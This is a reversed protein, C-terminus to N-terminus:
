NDIKVPFRVLVRAGGSERNSLEVSGGNAEILESAISLGLGNGEHTHRVEPSRYFRKFASDFAFEDFGRGTDCITVVAGSTDTHLEIEVAGGDPSYKIANDVLNFLARKLDDPSGPITVAEEVFINLKIDREMVKSQFLRVIDVIIEDIRVETEEHPISHSDIRVLIMLQEVLHALSDIENLSIDIGEKLRENEIQKRLFELESFIVTLPTRLEHSADAVFQRQSEFADEIRQMMENLANALSWVENRAAPLDIRRHLSSASIKEATIIMQSLPQFASGVVVYVSIASLFLAFAITMILILTLSDLREDIETMSSALALTLRSHHEDEIQRVTYRFRSDDLETMGRFVHHPESIHALQKSTPVPLNGHEAVIQGGNNTLRLRVDLLGTANVTALGANESIDKQSGLEEFEDSLSSAYSDLRTDLKTIEAERNREYVIAAVALLILGFILINVSILKARITM